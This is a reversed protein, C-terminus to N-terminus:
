CSKKGEKNKYFDNKIGDFIWIAIAVAHYSLFFLVIWAVDHNVLWLAFQTTTCMYRLITANILVLMLHHLVEELGIHM